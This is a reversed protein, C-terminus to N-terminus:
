ESFGTFSLMLGGCTNNNDSEFGYEGFTFEVIFPIDGAVEKILKAVEDIRSDIGARRGGCHVLHFAIPPKDMKEILAKLTEGTSSILEDVTAEMRIVCTKESLNNGIAMSFDDNGNMPHRIAILDGLRDKVGLPSTITTALLNGGTVAEMDIGRWKAYKKTAPVGDIEVLTRNGDVKTIVGFDDTERYSGTFLNTMKIDGYFFAIVVGDSFQSNDTYLKWNGSISNDAASGGFFPIRGIISSIGKLYFEEEAPSAAMYFFNPSSNQNAAKMAEAAILKGDEVPSAGREKSAIGIIMDPDSLAMVGVFGDESGIFGEPTIIGTFSTNGILPIDPLEEAVGSLMEDINYDCSGYVFAMKISDLGIKAKSAAEKGATKACSLISSGVNVKLM